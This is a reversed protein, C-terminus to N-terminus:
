IRLANRRTLSRITPPLLSALDARSTLRDMVPSYARVPSADTEDEASCHDNGMTSTGSQCVPPRANMLRSNLEVPWSALTSESEQSPPQQFARCTVRAECM